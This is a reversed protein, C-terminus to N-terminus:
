FYKLAVRVSTKEETLTRARARDVVLCLIGLFSEIRCHCDKLMGLPDDFGSDLKAGIQIAM